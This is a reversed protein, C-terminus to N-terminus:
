FKEPVLTYDHKAPEYGDSDQRKPLEPADFPLKEYPIQSLLDTICNLRASKKVDGNVVRWPAWESDTAAFM